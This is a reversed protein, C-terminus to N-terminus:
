GAVCSGLGSGSSLRFLGNTQWLSRIAPSTRQGSPGVPMVAELHSWPGTAPPGGSPFTGSTMQSGSADDGMRTPEHPGGVYEGHAPVDRYTWTPTHMHITDTSQRGQSPISAALEARAGALRLGAVAAGGAAVPGVVSRRSCQRRNAKPM